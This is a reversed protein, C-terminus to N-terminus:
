SAIWNDSINWHFIELKILLDFPIFDLRLKLIRPCPIEHLGFEKKLYFVKVDNLTCNYLRFRAYNNTNVASDMKILLNSLGRRENEESWFLPALFYIYLIFGFIVEAKSWSLSIDNFLLIIREPYPDWQGSFNWEPYFQIQAYWGDNLNSNM